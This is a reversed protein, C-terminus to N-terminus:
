AAHPSSKKEEKRGPQVQFLRLEHLLALIEQNQKVIESFVGAAATEELKRVLWGLDLQEASMGDTPLPKALRYLSAADVQPLIEALRHQAPTPEADSQQAEAFIQLQHNEIQFCLRAKGFVMLAQCAIVFTGAAICTQEHPEFALLGAVRRARTRARIADKKSRLRLSLFPTSPM